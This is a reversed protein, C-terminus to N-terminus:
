SLNVTQLIDESVMQMHMHAKRRGPKKVKCSGLSSIPPLYATTSQFPNETSAPFKYLPRCLPVSDQPADAIGFLACGQFCNPNRGNNIRAMLAYLRQCSCIGKPHPCRSLPRGARPVKMMLRDFHLCKTSRHGRICPESSSIFTLIQAAAM